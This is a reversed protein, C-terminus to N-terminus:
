NSRIIKSCEFPHTALFDAGAELLPGKKAEADWLAAISRIGYNKAGFIDNTTDGIMWISEKLYGGVLHDLGARHPKPIGDDPTWIGDFYPKLGNEELTRQLSSRGRATWIYLSFEGVLDLILEKIGPYMFYPTERTNFLTGDCDFVIHKM